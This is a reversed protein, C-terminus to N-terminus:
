SISKVSISGCNVIAFPVMSKRTSRPSGTYWLKIRHIYEYTEPGPNKAITCTLKISIFAKSLKSVYSIAGSVKLVWFAPNGELFYNFM